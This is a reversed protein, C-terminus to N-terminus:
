RTQVLQPSRRVTQRTVDARAALVALAGEFAQQRDRARTLLLLEIHQDIQGRGDGRVAATL